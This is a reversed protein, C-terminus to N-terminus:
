DIEEYDTYNNYDKATKKKDTIQIKGKNKESSKKLEDFANKNAKFKQEEDLNRKANMLQGLFKLVIFVGIILLITKVAGVLSGELM